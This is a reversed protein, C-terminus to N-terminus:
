EFEEGLAEELSDGDEAEFEDKEGVLRNLTVKQTQEGQTYTLRLRNNGIRDYRYVYISGDEAALTFADKDSTFTGSLVRDGNSLLFTDEETNFTIAMNGGEWSGSMWEASFYKVLLVGVVTGVLLVTIFSGLFWPVWKPIPKQDKPKGYRCRPCIREPNDYETGCRQCIM